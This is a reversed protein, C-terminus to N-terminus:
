RAVASAPPSPVFQPASGSVASSASAAVAGREDTHLLFDVVRNQLGPWQAHSQPGECYLVPAGKDCGSYARCGSTDPPGPTADCHNCAAWWKSTERGWGPFLSDNSGHMVMVPMPTRCGLDELDQARFGAASVAIAHMTDRSEPLLSLATSVTGGDSHGTYFVRHQDICWHKSVQSAVSALSEVNRKSMSRHDAYAVILGRATAAATLKSFREVAKARGGAYAYVVLLPHAYRPDYNAPARVRYSPMEEQGMEADVLAARDGSPCRAPLSQPYGFAAAQETPGDVGKSCAALLLVLSTLFVLWRRSSLFSSM